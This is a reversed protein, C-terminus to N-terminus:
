RQERRHQRQRRRVLLSLRADATDNDASPAPQPTLIRNLVPSSPASAIPRAITLANM